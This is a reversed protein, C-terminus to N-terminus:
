HRWIGVNIQTLMPEPLPKNFWHQSIKLLTWYCENSPVQVFIAWGNIVLIINFILFRFNWEFRGPSLSNVTGLWVDPLCAVVELKWQRYLFCVAHSVTPLGPWDWESRGQRGFHGGLLLNIWYFQDLSGNCVIWYCICWPNWDSITDPLCSHCM